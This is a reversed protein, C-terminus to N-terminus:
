GGFIQGFGFKRICCLVLVLTLLGTFAVMLNVGFLEFSFLRSIFYIPTDAIGFFLDGFTANMNDQPVYTFTGVLAMQDYVYKPMKTINLYINRNTIQWSGNKYMVLPQYPMDVSNPNLYSNYDCQVVGSYYSLTAYLNNNATVNGVVEFEVSNSYINLFYWGVYYDIYANSGSTFFEFFRSLNSQFVSSPVYPTPFYILLNQAEDNQLSLDENTCTVIYSDIPDDTGNFLYFYFSHSWSNASVQTQTITLSDMKIYMGEELSYVYCNFPNADNGIYFTNVDVHGLTDKLNYFGSLQTANDYVRKPVVQRLQGSSCSFTLLCTAILTKFM